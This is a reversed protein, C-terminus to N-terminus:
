GAFVAQPADVRAAIAGAAQAGDSAHLALLGNALADFHDRARAVTTRLARGQDGDCWARYARPLAPCLAARLGDFSAFWFHLAVADDRAILTPLTTELDAVLDRVARVQLDTRRDPLALRMAAWRPELRQAVRWEGLEHLLLTEAQEDLLRPLAAAFDADLGYADVVRKFAGDARKLGFAEFKEWMWRAFSERRLVVTRGVLAAPPAFLGRALERGCVQLALGDDLERAELLEALFFAPRDRAALAAGYALGEAALPGALTEVDFPDVGDDGGPSPLAVFDRGDLQAWERERQALWAGVADRALPAGLPLRQEWRYLERMQLLYSCLTLDAAHRADAIHCNTQVAAALAAVDRATM